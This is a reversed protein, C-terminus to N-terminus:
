TSNLLGSNYYLSDVVDGDFGSILTIDNVEQMIASYKLSVCVCFTFFIIEVYFNESGLMLAFDITTLCKGWLLVQKERFINKKQKLENCIAQQQGDLEKGEETIANLQENVKGWEEEM